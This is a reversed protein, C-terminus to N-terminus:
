QTSDQEVPEVVLEVDLVKFRFVRAVYRLAAELRQRARVPESKSELTIKWKM